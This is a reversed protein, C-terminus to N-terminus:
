PQWIKRPVIYWCPSFIGFQWLIYWIAVSYVLHEYFIDFQWLIYWIAVSYVLHDYFIDFPRLISGIDM